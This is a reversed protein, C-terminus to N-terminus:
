RFFLYKIAAAAVLLLVLVALLWVGGMAWTMGGNMMNQMM